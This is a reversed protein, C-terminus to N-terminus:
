GMGMEDILHGSEPSEPCRRSMLYLSAHVEIAIASKRTEHPVAAVAGGAAGAEVAAGVDTIVVTFLEVEDDVLVVGM